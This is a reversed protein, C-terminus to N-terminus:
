EYKEATYDTFNRKKEPKPTKGKGPPPTNKKLAPDKREKGTTLPTSDSLDLGLEHRYFENIDFESNAM